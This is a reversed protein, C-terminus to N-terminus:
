TAVAEVAAAARLLLGDSAPRGSLMMGVPMSDVTSLGGPFSIAPLGVLNAIVTWCDTYPAAMPDAMDEPSVPGELLAATTPMTPSLLLDCLALAAFTQRRLSQQDEAAARLEERGENRLRLGIEYRRVVEAGALGTEVYPALSSVSAASTLSMYVSLARQGLPISVPVVEAGLSRLQEVVVFLRALVEPRNRAGILEDVLGIRLGTLDRSDPLAALAPVDAMVSLLLATGAVTRSLPGVRDLAPAFPVVGTMPVLGPSPALGFVGCQSAPERISGGTDTGISLTAQGAAVAAASGGSSGGPSRRLDWPNRTPGLASTQTSAGMALEDMNARGVLVADARRLREVVVSDRLAIVGRHAHSGSATTQGMVDVNDKVVFPVGALAGLPQGAARRAGLERVTRLAGARDVPILAGIEDDVEAIRDLHDLLVEEATVAGSRVLDSLRAACTSTHPQPGTLPDPADGDAAAYARANV